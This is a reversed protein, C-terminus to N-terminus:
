RFSINVNKKSLNEIKEKNVNPNFVGILIQNEKLLLLNDDSLLGLQVIIDATSIIESEKNFIKVGLEKYDDDKFGLHEGYKESLIVEFGLSLYKIAIDPTIAIRKEVLQNELVSVIRM